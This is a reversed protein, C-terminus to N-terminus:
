PQRLAACAFFSLNPVSRGSCTNGEALESDNHPVQSNKTSIGHQNQSPDQCFLFQITYYLLLISYLLVMNPVAAATAGIHRFYTSIPAQWGLAWLIRFRFDIMFNFLFIGGWRYPSFPCFQCRGLSRELIFKLRKQTGRYSVLFILRDRMVEVALLFHSDIM